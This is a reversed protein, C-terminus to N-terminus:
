RECFSKSGDPAAECHWKASRTTALWKVRGTDRQVESVQVSEWATNGLAASTAKQLAETDAPKGVPGTVPPAYSAPTGKSAPKFEDANAVDHPFDRQNDDGDHEVPEWDPRRYYIKVTTWPKTFAKPDEVTIEDRLENLTPSWLHETIHMEDSHRGNGPLRVSDKVCCTDIFLEQNKWYGISHGTTSPLADAPHVRGDTYIHRPLGTESAILTTRPNIEIDMPFLMIMMGPMGGGGPGGTGPKRPPTAAVIKAYEETYDPRQPVGVPLSDNWVFDGGREWVGNWDPLDQWGPLKPGGAAYQATQASAATGWLGLGAALAMAAAGSRRGFRAKM